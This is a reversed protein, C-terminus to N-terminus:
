REHASVWRAYDAVSREIDYEPTFGTDTRLRTIDLYAQPPKAPDSGAPLTIGAQPVADNIAAVVDGIRAPQGSSVNYIRHPLQETIMLLAIARGCDKVYCLDTVDDARAAPRPPTLDPDEGWVAATLLRPLPTFPNDPVGIPGWITGIRLSIPDFGASDGVLATYSEATKKFVPIQHPAVVPLPSDETFPLQECGAYVGITSAHAFRRVGWKRAADLVNLLGVSDARLYAVPDPLDYPAAALHVIGTIEHRSGLDLLADADTIDVQEVALRDTPQGALFDPLRTSRHATLLVSEGLDLLAAATHSGISGLGGTILIM